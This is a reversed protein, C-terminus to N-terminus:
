RVTIRIRGSQPSFLFKLKEFTPMGSTLSFRFGNSFGLPEAPFRFINHDLDANNNRDQFATIAYQGYPLHRFVLVGKGKKIRGRSKLPPPKFLDDGRRFLNAQVSGIDDAMGDVEVWLTGVPGSEPSGALSSGVGGLMLGLIMVVGLFGALSSYAISNYQIAYLGFFLRMPTRNKLRM